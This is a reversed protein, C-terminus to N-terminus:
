YTKSITVTKSGTMLFLIASSFVRFACFLNLTKVVPTDLKVSIVTLHASLGVSRDSATLEHNQFTHSSSALKASSGSVCSHPTSRQAPSVAGFSGAGGMPGRTCPMSHCHKGKLRQFSSGFLSSWMEVQETSQGTLSSGGSCPTHM